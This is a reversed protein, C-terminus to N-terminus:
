NSSGIMPVSTDVAPFAHEVMMSAASAPAPAATPQPVPTATPAPQANMTTGVAFVVAPIDYMVRGATNLAAQHGAVPVAAIQAITPVAAPAAVPAGEVYSSAPAATFGTQVAVQAPVYEPMAVDYYVRGDAAIASSNDATENGGGANQSAVQTWTGSDVAPIRLSVGVRINSCDSLVDRNAECITRWLDSDRYYLRAIKSLSDGPLIKHMKETGAASAPYAANVVIPAPIFQQAAAPIGSASVDASVTIREGSIVAPQASQNGEAARPVMVMKIPQTGPVGVIPGTAIDGSLLYDLGAGLNVAM